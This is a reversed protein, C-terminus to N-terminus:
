HEDEVTEPIMSPGINSDLTSETSVSEIEDLYEHIEQSALERAEEDREEESIHKVNKDYVISSKSKTAGTGNKSNYKDYDDGYLKHEINDTILAFINNTVENVDWSGRLNHYKNIRNSEMQKVYYEHSTVPTEGSLEDFLKKNVSMHIHFDLPISVKESPFTQAIIFIPKNDKMIEKVRQNIIETDRETGLHMYNLVVAGFDKELLEFVKVIPTIPLGTALVVYKHKKAMLMELINQSM